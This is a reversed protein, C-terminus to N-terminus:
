DEEMSDDDTDICRERKKHVVSSEYPVFTFKDELFRRLEGPMVEAARRTNGTIYFCSGARGIHVEVFKRVGYIQFLCGDGDHCHVMCVIGLRQGKKHPIGSLFEDLVSDEMDVYPILGWWLGKAMLALVFDRLESVLDDIGARADTVVRPRPMAEALYPEKVLGAEVDQKALRAVGLERMTRWANILYTATWLRTAGPLLIQPEFTNIDIQVIDFDVIGHKVTVVSGSIVTGRRPSNETPAYLTVSGPKAGAMLVRAQTRTLSTGWWRDGLEAVFDDWQEILGPAYEHLFRGMIKLDADYRKHLPSVTTESAM